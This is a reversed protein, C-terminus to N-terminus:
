GPVTERAVRARENASDEAKMQADSARKLVEARPTGLELLRVITAYAAARGHHYHETDYM